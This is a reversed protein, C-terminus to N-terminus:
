PGDRYAKRISSEEEETLIGAEGKWNQIQKMYTRNEERSFIGSIVFGNGQDDLLALSYSMEGSTDKFANYRVFGKRKLTKRGSKELLEIVNAMNAFSASLAEVQSVQGLVIEELSQGDRGRFLDQQRRRIGNQHIMLTILLLLNLLGLSALALLVYDGTLRQILQM